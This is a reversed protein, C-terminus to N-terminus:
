VDKALAARVAADKAELLKRLAVTREPNRPLQVIKAALEAFPASVEQLHEPLHAFVFFQMIHETMTNSREDRADPPPAALLARADKMADRHASIQPTFWVAMKYNAWEDSNTYDEVANWTEVLRALAARADPPPLSASSGSALGSKRTYGENPTRGESLDATCERGQAEAAALATAIMTCDDCEIGPYVTPYEVCGSRNSLMDAHISRAVARVDPPPAAPAAEIELAADVIEAWRWREVVVFDKEQWRTANHIVDLLRALAARADMVSDGM